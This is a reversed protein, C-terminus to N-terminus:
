QPGWVEILRVEYQRNVQSDGDRAQSKVEQSAKTTPLIEFEAWATFYENLQSVDAQMTWRSAPSVGTTSGNLLVRLQHYGFQTNTYFWNIFVKVLHPRVFRPTFNVTILDHWTSDQDNFLTSTDEAAALRRMPLERPLTRLDRSFTM